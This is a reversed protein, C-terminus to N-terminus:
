KALRAPRGVAGAEAQMDAVGHDAVDARGVPHVVCREARGNVERGSQLPEVLVAPRLHEYASSDLFTGFSPKSEAAHVLDIWLSKRLGHPDKFQASLLSAAWLKGKALKPFLDIARDFM